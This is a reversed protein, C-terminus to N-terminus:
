VLPSIAGNINRGIGGDTIIVQDEEIHTIELFKIKFEELSIKKNRCTWIKGSKSFCTALEELAPFDQFDLSTEGLFHIQIFHYINAKENFNSM